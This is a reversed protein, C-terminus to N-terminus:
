PAKREQRRAIIADLAPNSGPPRRARPEPQETVPAPEAGLGEIERITEVANRVAEPRPAQISRSKHLERAGFFFGVIAGLLYWLPEPVQQLAVMRAAFWVPDAMAAAFLGITGFAMLPRPLRNLGDVFGDFWTTRTGGFEAAFQALAANGAEHVRGSQKEANVRFVEATEAVVNRGGGFLAALWNLGM